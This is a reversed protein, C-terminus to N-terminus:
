KKDEMCEVIKVRINKSKYMREIARAESENEAIIFKLNEFIVLYKM